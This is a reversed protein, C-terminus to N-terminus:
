SFQPACADRRLLEVVYDSAFTGAGCDSPLVPAGRQLGRSRKRLQSPVQVM